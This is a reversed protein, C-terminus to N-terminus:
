KGSNNLLGWYSCKTNSPDFGPPFCRDNYLYCKNQYERYRDAKGNYSYFNSFSRWQRCMKGWKNKWFGWYHLSDMRNRISRCYCLWRCLIDRDIHHIYLDRDEEIYWKDKIREFFEEVQYIKDKCSLTNHHHSWDLKYVKCFYKGWKSMKKQIYWNSNKELVIWFM